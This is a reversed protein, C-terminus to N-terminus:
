SEAQTITKKVLVSNNFFMFCINSLLLAIIKTFYTLNLVDIYKTYGRVIALEVQEMLFYWVLSVLLLYVAIAFIYLILNSLRAIFVNWIAAGWSLESLEEGWIHYVTYLIYLPLTVYLQLPVLQAFRATSLSYDFFYQYSILLLVLNGMMLLVDVIELHYWKHEKTIKVEDLVEM